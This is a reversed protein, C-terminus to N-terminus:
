HEDYWHNQRQGHPRLLRGKGLLLDAVHHAGSQSIIRACLQDLLAPNIERRRFVKHLAELGCACALCKKLGQAQVGIM